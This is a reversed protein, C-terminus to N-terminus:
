ARLRKMHAYRLMSQKQAEQTEYREKVPILGINPVTIPRSPLLRAKRSAAVLDSLDGSQFGPAPISPQKAKRQRNLEDIKEIDARSQPM